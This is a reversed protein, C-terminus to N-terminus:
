EAKATPRDDKKPPVAVPGYSAGMCSFPNGICGLLDFSEEEKAKTEVPAPHSVAKEVDIPKASGPGRYKIYKAPINNYCGQSASKTVSYVPPTDPASQASSFVLAESYGSVGPIKAWVPMAQAFQLTSESAFYPEGYPKSQICYVYGMSDLNVAAYQVIGYLVVPPMGVEFDMCVVHCGPHFILNPPIQALPVKLLRGHGSGDITGVSKDDKTINVEHANRQQWEAAAQAKMVASM